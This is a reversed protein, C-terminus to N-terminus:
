EGITPTSATPMKEKAGTVVLRIFHGVMELIFMALGISVLLHFPWMISESYWESKVGWELSFLLYDISKTLLYCLTVLCALTTVLELGQSVRLSLRRVLLEVRIHKGMRLAYALGLYVMLVLLYGSYEEVYLWAWDLTKRAVVNVTIVVVMIVIAVVGMGAGISSMSALVKDIKAMVNTLEAGRSAYRAPKM